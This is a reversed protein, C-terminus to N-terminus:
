GRFMKETSEDGPFGMFNHSLWLFPNAAVFLHLLPLPIYPVGPLFDFLLVWQRLYWMKGPAPGQLIQAPTPMFGKDIAFDPPTLGIIRPCHWQLCSHYTKMDGMGWRTVLGDWTEVLANATTQREKNTMWEIECMNRMSRNVEPNGTQFNALWREDELPIM